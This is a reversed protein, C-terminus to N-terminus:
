LKTSFVKAFPQLITFNTSTKERLLKGSYLVNDHVQMNYMHIITVMILTFMALDLEYM